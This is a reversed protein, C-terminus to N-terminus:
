LFLLIIAFVLGADAMYIGRCFHNTKPKYMWFSSIALFHLLTAYIVIFWQTINGSTTRHLIILKNLVSPLEKETYRIVGTSQNYTGGQFNVIEGEIKSGHFERKPL